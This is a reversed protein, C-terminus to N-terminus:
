ATATAATRPHPAPPRGCPPPPGPPGPTAGGLPAGDAGGWTLSSSVAPRAGVGDGDWVADGVGDAEAEATAPALHLGGGDDRERQAGERVAAPVGQRVLGLVARVVEVLVRERLRGPRRPEHRQQHVGLGAEPGVERSQGPM